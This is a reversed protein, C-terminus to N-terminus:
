KVKSNEDEEIRKKVIDEYNGDISYALNDLDLSKKEETYNNKIDKAARKGFVVCELLSNSALRNTGHVGTNAVEGIAYLNNMSTRANMDVDIGGITYHHAPVVPVNEKKPDIGIDMLYKCINPFRANIDKDITRFNLWEHKSNDKKMEEFIAKSVVDRPKLEDIFRNGHYNLIKAGEGRVSESILFRRGIKEEYLSTPHIQINSIDKLKVGHTIAVGIGDGKIHPFSTSNGYLGGTGGTALVTYKSNIFTYKNDYKAIVGLSSNDMEVIDKMECEELIRINRRTKVKKILGEMVARGTIDNHYVIRFKSHGGERTYALSDDKMNFEVGYKLLSQIADESEDVLIEVAKKNNKFHGATLTDNIFSERDKEGRRVSIGGQALYSNSDELNKKTILIINYDEPLELACVLGAVGSGVVVVDCDIKIM